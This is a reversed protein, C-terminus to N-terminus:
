SSSCAGRDMLARGACPAAVVSSLGLGNAVGTVRCAGDVVLGDVVVVAAGVVGTTGVVEGGAVPVAGVEVEGRTSGPGPTAAFAGVVVFVTLLSVAAIM